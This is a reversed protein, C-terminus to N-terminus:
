GRVVETGVGKDTLLEHLLDNSGIIQVKFNSPLLHSLEEFISYAENLKVAMGETVVGNGILRPIDAYNLSSILEGDKLVGCKDTVLLVKQVGTSYKHHIGINVPHQLGAVIPKVILDANVNYPQHNVDYGICWLVPSKPEYVNQTHMLLLEINAHTPIGVYGLEPSCPKVYIIKHDILSIAAGGCQNIASVLKSNVNSLAPIVCEDLAKKQTVRHGDVKEIQYEKEKMLKDIQPQGGHLIIPYEGLQNLVAISQPLSNNNGNLCEGGIKIIISGVLLELNSEAELIPIGLSGVYGIGKHYNLAKLVERPNIGRYGFYRTSWGGRGHGISAM